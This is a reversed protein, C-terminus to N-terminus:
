PKYGYFADQAELHSCVYLNLTSVVDRALYFAVHILQFRCHAHLTVASSILCVKWTTKGCSDCKVAYCENVLVTQIAHAAM